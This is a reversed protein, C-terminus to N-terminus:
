QNTLWYVLMVWEWLILDCFDIDLFFEVMFFALLKLQVNIFYLSSPCPRYNYKYIPKPKSAANSTDNRIKQFPALRLQIVVTYHWPTAAWALSVGANHLEAEHASVM